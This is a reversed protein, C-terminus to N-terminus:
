PSPEDRAILDIWSDSESNRSELIHKAARWLPDTATERPQRFLQIAGRRLMASVAYRRLRTDNIEGGSKVYECTFVRARQAFAAGGGGGSLAELLLHSLYTAIDTEADGRSLTDLDVLAAGSRRPILQAAHYDRHLLASGAAEANQWEAALREFTERFARTDHSDLFDFTDLWRRAVALEDRPHHAADVTLPARHLDALVQAATLDSVFDPAGRQEMGELVVMNMNGVYDVCGPVLTGSGSSAFHRAAQDHLRALARGRQDHFMKAYLTEKGCYRLTCRKGSRYRALECRVSDLGGDIGLRQAAQTGSLRLALMPPHLADALCPLKRDLDPSCVTLSLAPLELGVGLLGSGSLRPPESTRAFARRGGSRSWRGQLHVDRKGGDDGTLGLRYEITFRRRKNPFLRTVGVREIRWGAPLELGAQFAELMREDDLCAALSTRDM